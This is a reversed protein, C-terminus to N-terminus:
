RLPGAVKIAAGGRGKSSSFAARSAATSSLVHLHGIQRCRLDEASIVYCHCHLAVARRADIGDHWSPNRTLM